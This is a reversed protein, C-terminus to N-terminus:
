AYFYGSEASFRRQHDWCFQYGLSELVEDDQLADDTLSKSKIEAHLEDVLEDDGYSDFTPADDKALIVLNGSEQHILWIGNMIESVDQYAGKENDQLGLGM